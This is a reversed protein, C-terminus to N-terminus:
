ESEEKQNQVRLAVQSQKEKNPEYHVEASDSAREGLLIQEAQKTRIDEVRKLTLM